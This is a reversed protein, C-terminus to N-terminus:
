RFQLVRLANFLKIKIMMLCGSAAYNFFSVSPAYNLSYLTDLILQEYRHYM